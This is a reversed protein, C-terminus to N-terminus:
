KAKLILREGGGEEVQSGSPVRKFVTLYKQRERYKGIEGANRTNSLVQKVTSNKWIRADHVSGPWSVDISTFMERANCTGQVNLSAKGKRNIYEDGHIRPKEICVHTCDVVGIATPFSHKSQWLAKAEAIEQETTPFKIWSGAQAVVSDVVSSVVPSVTSQDVGLEEGVGKQFGPDALYRLCIKM